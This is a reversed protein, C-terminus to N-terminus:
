AILDGEPECHFENIRKHKPIIPPFDNTSLDERRFCETKVKSGLLERM